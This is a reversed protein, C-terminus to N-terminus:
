AIDKQIRAASPPKDGSGLPRAMPLYGTMFAGPPETEIM